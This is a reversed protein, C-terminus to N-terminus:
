FSFQLLREKMAKIQSIDEEFERNGSEEHMRRSIETIINIEDDLGVLALYNLVGLAMDRMERNKTSELNEIIRKIESLLKGRTRRMKLLLKSARDSDLYGSALLNEGEELCNTHEELIEDLESFAQDIAREHKNM